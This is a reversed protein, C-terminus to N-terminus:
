GSGEAVRQLRDILEADAAPFELTHLEGRPVWRMEQGLLARPEGMLACRFFHLQVTREPYIHSVSYMEDGIALEAGLEERIERTLCAQFTEGPNCKGGPFEWLGALHVGGPRRTVLYRDDREIVAATVVVPPRQHGRRGSSGDSCDTLPLGPPM